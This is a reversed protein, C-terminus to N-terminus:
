SSVLKMTLSLTKEQMAIITIAIEAVMCTISAVRITRGEPPAPPPEVMVEDQTSKNDVDDDAEDEEEEGVGPIEPGAEEEEVGPIEPGMPVGHEEAQDAAEVWTIEGPPNDPPQVLDVPPPADMMPPDHGGMADNDDDDDEDDDNAVPPGHAAMENGDDDNGEAENYSLVEEDEGESDGNDYYTKDDDNDDDYEDLNLNRIAFILGPNNKQQRAMRHIKDIMNDPMPLAMAHLRNLIRGTVISLFIFVRNGNGEPCLALAGVTRPNMSNSHEEHTQAYETFQFRCHCKYDVQQGTLITCPSLDQSAGGMVPFANLWFVATKTMEIVLWAPIKQFPLTDYIAQM